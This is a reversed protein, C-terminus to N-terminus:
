KRLSLCIDYLAVTLSKIKEHVLEPDGEFNVNNKLYCFIQNKLNIETREHPLNTDGGSDDRDDEGFGFPSAIALTNM